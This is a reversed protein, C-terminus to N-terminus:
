ARGTMMLLQRKLDAKQSAFRPDDALNTWEHPDADHDYLEEAGNSYLIYRWRRTRVAYHHAETVCDPGEHARIVSLVGESGEWDKTDPDQLFPVLSTGDLAKGKENKRTDGEIGCLELLTPYVDLLSVPHRVVTGARGVGPARIILPVRESEEWLAEKFLYDKQGMNYGNDSIVVIITNDRFPSRDVADLVKGIEEDVCAGCALYAQLYHRLGEEITPYSEKLKRFHLPGKNSAPFVDLYHTDEIDGEKIVPLEVEDVPFMDFFRKPAHLPTHPRIYGVGLLFPRDQEQRSLAEIRDVAWRTCREDPTPDREHEGAYRLARIQKWRPQDYWGKAGPADKTPPVDPVDSLPGFGGDVFGISRFPEPVSPHAVFEKGNYAFPGYNPRYGHEEWIGERFHHLLKGTGMTRYGSDRFYEPILKTNILVENEFWPSFHFHGSTHCHLGSFFSSRSPSCIPNNAYARHFSVGSAALRALNLTRAQPHGGWGTVYDNLDDTLILVVNPRGTPSRGGDAADHANNRADRQQMM